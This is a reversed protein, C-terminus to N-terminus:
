RNSSRICQALHIYNLLNKCLFYQMLIFQFYYMNNVDVLTWVRKNKFIM